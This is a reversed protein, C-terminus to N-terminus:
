SDFLERGPPFWVAVGVITDREESARAVYVDGGLLGAIVTAYCFDGYFAEDRDTVAITFPDTSTQLDSSRAGASM